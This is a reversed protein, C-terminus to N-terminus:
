IKTMIGQHMSIFAGDIDSDSVILKINSHFIKRGNRKKFGLILITQAKFNKLESLLERLKNKIMPKTNSLQLEPYFLNLIEVNYCHVCNDSSNSQMMKAYQEVEDSTTLFIFLLKAVKRLSQEENLKSYLKEWTSKFYESFNIAVFDTLIKLDYDIKLIYLM